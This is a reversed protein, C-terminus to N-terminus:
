HKIFILEDEKELTYLLLLKKKSKIPLLKYEKESLQNFIFVNCQYLKSVSHLINFDNM